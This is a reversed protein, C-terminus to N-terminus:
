RAETVSPASSIPRAQRSHVGRPCQAKQHSSNRVVLRGGHEDREGAYSAIYADVEAAVAEALMRRKGESVIQV